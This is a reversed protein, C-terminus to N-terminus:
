FKFQGVVASLDVSMGKLFDALDSTTAANRAGDVAAKSINEINKTVEDSASTAQSVNNAVEKATISQEEVASAIAGSIENLRSIVGAINAIATVSKESSGQINTIRGKIDESSEGAQRALEKVESAVVAFGKGADGAGAAEISANLALLNTQNAISVIQEIVNGIESANEGLKLILINTDSAVQNAESAITSADATKRAVEDISISMEEISSSIVQFNQNMQTAMTAMSQSQNSMEETGASMSQSAEALNKSADVIKATNQAISKVIDQIKMIFRNLWEAVEGVEDKSNVVLRKTLDGEGEAIDKIRVVAEGLPRAVTRDLLTTIGAGLIFSAIFLSVIVYISFNSTDEQAAELEAAEDEMIKVFREMDKDLTEFVRLWEEEYRLALELNRNELAENFKKRISGEEAELAIIKEALDREEQTLEKQVLAAWAKKNEASLKESQKILKRVTEYDDMRAHELEQAMDIQIFLINKLIETLSEVPLFHNEFIDHFGNISSRLAVVSQVTIVFILAIFFGSSVM